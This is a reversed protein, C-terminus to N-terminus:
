YKSTRIIKKAIKEKGNDITLYYFNSEHEEWNLTFRNIGTKLQIREEKIKRGLFDSLVMIIKSEKKSHISVTVEEEAPVPYVEVLAIETKLREIAIIDSFEFTGDFDVIHLRYYALSAPNQDELQYSQVNTSFGVAEVRDIEIFDRAGDLSREVIFVMTNEESATQWKLLNSREEAFGNFSILEVPLPSNELLEMDNGDGGTYTITMPSGNFDFTAGEPLGFFTGTIPNGSTNNIIMFNDGSTPTYTGSLNLNANTINISGIPGIEIQDYSSAGNIDIDLDIDSCDVPHQFTIKGVPVTATGPSITSGSGGGIFFEANVTGDGAFTGYNNFIVNGRLMDDKVNSITVTGFNDFTYDDNLNIGNDICNGGNITISGSLNNTVKSGSVVPNDYRIGDSCSGVASITITGSNVLDDSIDFGDGNDANVNVTGTSFVTMKTYSGIDIGDGNANSIVNLTGSVNLNSENGSVGELRIGKNGEIVGKTATLTAGAAITLNGSTNLYMVPPVLEPHGGNDGNAGIAVSEITINSTINASLNNNIYTDADFEPLMDNGWNELTDWNTTTGDNDWYRDFSLVSQSSLMNLSFVGLFFCLLIRRKM